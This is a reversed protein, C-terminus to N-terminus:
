YRGTALQNFVEEWQPVVKEPSCQEALERGRLSLKRVLDPEGLLRRVSDAMGRVDNPEVLLASEEHQVLFPVGGVNTSVIPLGFAGAEILCVPMNDINTTNLYIDHRDFVEQKEEQRLFGPFHVKGELGLKAVLKRMENGIGKEQGALTLEADPYEKLVDRLVYVAMQPNYYDYFTRMWLLRPRACRRLTFAYNPLSIINPIVTAGFGFPQIARALYSSPTVIMDARSLIKKSWAPFRRMYEPMAGGHLVMMLPKRLAHTVLGVLDEVVFSAGSYAQLSVLDFDNRRRLLTQITDGLRLYRNVIRSTLVCTHGREELYPALIEMPNPVWGPNSGLMPGVFCVRPKSSM